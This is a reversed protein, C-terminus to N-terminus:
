NLINTLADALERTRAKNVEPDKDVNASVHFIFHGSHVSMQSLSPVWAAKNGIGEVPEIDRGKTTYKEGKVDVTTGKELVRMASDFSSGASSVDDFRPTYITLSVEYSTKMEPKEVDKGQMKAKLYDGYSAKFHEEIEAANPKPWSVTCLPYPSYKSPTHNLTATDLDFFRSLFDRTLIACPEPDEQIETLAAQTTENTSDEANNGCSALMLSGVVLFFSFM